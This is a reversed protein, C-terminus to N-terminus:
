NCFYLLQYRALWSCSGIGHNVMSHNYTFLLVSFIQLLIENRLNRNQGCMAKGGSGIYAVCQSQNMGSSFITKGIDTAIKFIEFPFATSIM